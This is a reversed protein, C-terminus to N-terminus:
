KSIAGLVSRLSDAVPSALLPAVVAVISTIIAPPAFQLTDARAANAHGTQAPRPLANVDLMWVAVAPAFALFIAATGLAGFQLVLSDAIPTLAVAQSTAVLTLPWEVLAKNCLVGMVFSASAFWLLCRLLFRRSTLTAETLREPPLWTLLALATLLMGIPILAVLTDAFILIELLQGTPFPLGHRKTVFPALGTFSDAANLLDRVVLYRGHVNSFSAALWWSVAAWVVVAGIVGPWKWKRCPFFRFVVAASFVFTALAVIVLFASAIAYAVRGAYDRAPLFMTADPIVKAGLKATTTKNAAAAGDPKAPTANEAAAAGDPKAAAAKEATANDDAAAAAYHFAFGATEQYLAPPVLVEYFRGLVIIAVFPGAICALALLSRWWRIAPKAAATEAGGIPVRM